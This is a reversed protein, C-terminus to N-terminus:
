PKVVENRDLTVRVTFPGRKPIKSFAENLAAFAAQSPTAALSLTKEFEQGESTVKVTVEIRNAM